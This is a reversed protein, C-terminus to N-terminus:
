QELSHKGSINTKPQQRRSIMWFYIKGEYRKGKVSLRMSTMLRKVSNSAECQYMGSYGVQVSPFWLSGENIVCNMKNGSSMMRIGNYFWAYTIPPVGKAECQLTLSSNVDVSADTLRKIWQTEELMTVTTTAEYWDGYSNRARCVYTGANKADFNYIVYQRKNSTTKGLEEKHGLRTLSVLPVPRGHAICELVFTKGKIAYKPEKFDSFIGPEKVEYRQEIPVAVALKLTRIETRGLMTNGVVCVYSGSDATTVYSFYLDGNYGVTYHPADELPLLLDTYQFDKKSWRVTRLNRPKMNPIQCRLIVSDANNAKVKLFPQSFKDLFPFDLRAPLSKIVGVPNSSRCRYNGSDRYEDVKKLRLGGNQLVDFHNGKLPADDKEWTVSPTPQGRTICYLSIDIGAQAITDVPNSLISPGEYNKACSM